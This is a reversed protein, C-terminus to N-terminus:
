SKPTVDNKTAIKKNENNFLETYLKALTNSKGSGTNGFIGMHTNFLKDWPLEIVVSNSVSKGILIKYESTASDKQMISKIENETLLIAENFIMPFRKIGFEFKGNYMNGVLSVELHRQFRARSFEHISPEKSKDELFEKEVRGIIKNSGRIIGIYSGISIGNFIVGDCHFTELNSNENMLIKIKMGDISVVNGIVYNNSSM